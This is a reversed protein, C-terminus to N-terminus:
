HTEPHNIKTAKARIFQIPKELAHAKEKISEVHTPRQQLFGCRVCCTHEVGQVKFLATKDMLQCQPCIVGALFRKM